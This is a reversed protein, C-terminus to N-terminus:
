GELVTVTKEACGGVSTVIRLSTLCFLAAVAFLLSNVASVVFVALAQLGAGLTATKPPRAQPM